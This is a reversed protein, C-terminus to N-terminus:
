LQHRAGIWVVSLVAIPRDVDSRLDGLIQDVSDRWFQIAQPKGAWSRDRKVDVALAAGYAGRLSNPLQGCGGIGISLATPEDRNNCPASRACSRVKEREAIIGDSVVMGLDDIM